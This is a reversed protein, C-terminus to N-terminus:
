NAGAALELPDFEVIASGNPDLEVPVQAVTEGNVELRVTRRERESSFSQVEATLEGTLPSGGFSAIAWNADDEDAVGYIAIAAPLSPALEAFRAPMSSQQGDTVMNHMNSMSAARVFWACARWLRRDDLRVA